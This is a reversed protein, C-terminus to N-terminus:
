AQNVSLESMKGAIDDVPAAGNMERTTGNV